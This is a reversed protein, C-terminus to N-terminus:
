KMHRWSCLPWLEGNEHWGNCTWTQHAEAAVDLAQHPPQVALLNCVVRQNWRVNAALQIAYVAYSLWCLQVQGGFAYNTLLIGPTCNSQQIETQVAACCYRDVRHYQPLPLVILLSLSTAPVLMGLFTGLLHYGSRIHRGGIHSAVCVCSDGYNSCSLMPSLTTCLLNNATPGGPYFHGKQWTSRPTKGKWSDVTWSLTKRSLIVRESIRM